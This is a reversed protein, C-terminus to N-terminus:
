PNIVANETLTLTVADADLAANAGYPITIKENVHGFPFGTAVPAGIGGLRDRVVESVTFSNEYISPHDKDPVCSRFVGLAVGKVYDFAGALLLQSLMRDVRYPEESVEELYVIKDKFDFEFPTGVLSAVVSLNGGALRGEAKGGVVTVRKYNDADDRLKKLDRDPYPFEYTPRPNMVVDRFSQVSFEDFTSIGVPGHFSILGVRDFLAGHLATVDSYGILPKPHKRIIEYDLRELLRIAGYGGRACWVGFVDDDAFMENLDDAREQDVGAFYGSRKLLNKGVKVKFGAAELNEISEAVGDETVFGGPAVLGVLDGERLRPPKVVGLGRTERRKPTDGTGGLLAGSAGLLAAAGLFTRRDM